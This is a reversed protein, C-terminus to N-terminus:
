TRPLVANGVAEREASGASDLNGGGDVAPADTSLLPLIVSFTAGRPPTNRVQIEGGHEKIIGYCISLGLGTGKGVPKTTYFPDFVRNPNEIGTGSDTFEVVLKQEVTQTCIWIEGAPKKELIADVANNLINLFVQQLQHFDAATLPLTPSFDRHVVIHSGRLDYERLSLTDELIQNLQVPKREPKHQRAFSLLNEVIRHTRQAQKYLKELFEDTRSPPIEGSRLLQSYGLIATLPNNLEHAVGSILQGVAAMKESQLLQEQALRLSDYAHRTKEYLARKDMTMAIQNAVACLVSLEETSFARPERNAAILFGMVRDKSWLVIIQSSQIGEDRNLDRFASPLGPAAGSLVTARAHTIQQILASSADIRAAYAAGDTGQAIAASYGVAAMRRLVQSDEDLAYVSAADMVLLKTVKELTTQIGDELKNSQGLLEAISNLALLERNRRRLTMEAQKHETVDLLFGQHGTIVGSDDRTVFSSENATRIEGDRRRFQFEFGMVEGHESMLRLLRTRDAPNVYFQPLEHEFLEERTEYGLMRMFADNFDVLRGEPSAIFVGEQVKHFLTDFKSEAQRRGTFDKLVHITGLRDGNSDHFASDTALFYAGFFPDKREPKGAIGECYPCCSWSPDNSGLAERLFRKHLSVPETGLHEALARNARLIQGDASHVLILDDISDFTDLWQRRSTAASEFLTINQITLGLLNVVNTLYHEEASGFIKPTASGVMLVGLPGSKGPIRVVALSCLGQNRVWPPLDLNAPIGSLVQPAQQGAINAIWPHSAPERWTERLSDEGLGVRARASLATANAPDDFLYVVGHSAGLSTVLGRLVGMLTEDVKLSQMAEAAILALRRLKENLEDTRARSAELALIAVGVGMVIGALGHLSARALGYAHTSWQPRDLGHIGRFMMAFALIEWGLGQSRRPSRWLILAGAMYLVSELLYGSWREVPTLGTLTGFAFLAVAVTVALPYLVRARLKRTQISLVALFLFEAALVSLMATLRFNTQGGLSFSAIRLAEWALYVTWGAMWSRFFRGSAAPALLCYFVMLLLAASAEMYALALFGPNLTSTM